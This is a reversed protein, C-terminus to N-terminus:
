FERPSSRQVVWLIRDCNRRSGSSIPRELAEKPHGRKNVLTSQLKSHQKMNSCIEEAVTYVALSTHKKFKSHM